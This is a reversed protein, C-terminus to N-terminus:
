RKAARHRGVGVGALGLAMLLFASPEPVATTDSFSGAQIFVGSDWGGDFTDAIALKIHHLGPTLGLAQATFVKTFGDYEVDFPIPNSTVDNNNFYASNEASSVTNASIPSSTGPILAINVGDLFFGIFDAYPTNVSENYDESGFVYNFFVNGGVSTFDFELVSADVSTEPAILTNLNADGAISNNRGFNDAVNPGIANLAAGTTLIIGSNIGIGSALGGTFTGAADAVGTYSPNSIVIGSGVLANALTNADGTPTITLAHASGAVSVGAAALLIALKIKTM